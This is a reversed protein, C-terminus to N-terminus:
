KNKAYYINIFSLILFSFISIVVTLGIPGTMTYDLENNDRVVSILELVFFLNIFLSWSKFADSKFYVTSLPIFFTSIAFIKLIYDTCDFNCYINLNLKMMVLVSLFLILFVKQFTKYINLDKRNYDKNM